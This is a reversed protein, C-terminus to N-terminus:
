SASHYWPGTGATLVYPNTGMGHMDQTLSLSATWCRVEEWRGPHDSSGPPSPDGANARSSPIGLEKPTGYSPLGPLSGLFFQIRTPLWFIKDARLM